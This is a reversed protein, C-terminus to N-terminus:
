EGAANDGDTEGEYCECVFTGCIHRELTNYSEKRYRSTVAKATSGGGCPHVKVNAWATATDRGDASLCTAM